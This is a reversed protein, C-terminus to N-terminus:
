RQKHLFVPLCRRGTGRRDKPAPRTASPIADRAARAWFPWTAAHRNAASSADATLRDEVSVGTPDVLSASGGKAEERSTPRENGAVLKNAGIEPMMARLKAGVEEIPHDAHHRRIAKFHAQGAKKELVRDRAFRGEQEAGKACGSSIFGFSPRTGYAM